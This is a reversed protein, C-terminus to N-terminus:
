EDRCDSGESQEDELGRFAAVGEAKLIAEINLLMLFKDGQQIMASIYDSNLGTGLRPVPGLQDGALEFVEEVSDTLVGMLVEEGIEEVPIEMIMICTNVSRVIAAMGLKLGLDVVPVVNGRLNIVGCMHDPMRPVRTLTAVDLVERVKFIDVAFHEERLIFSLYQSTSGASPM